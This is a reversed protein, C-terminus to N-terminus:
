MRNFCRQGPCLRTRRGTQLVLPNSNVTEYAGALSEISILSPAVSVNGVPPWSVTRPPRIVAEPSVSVPGATNVMALPPFLM